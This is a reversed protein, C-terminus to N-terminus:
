RRLRCLIGLKMMNRHRKDLCCGDRMQIRQLLMKSEQLLINSEPLMMRSEPLLMCVKEEVSGGFVM